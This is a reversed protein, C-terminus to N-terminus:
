RKKADGLPQAGSRRLSSFAELGVAVRWHRVHVSIGKLLSAVTLVANETILGVRTCSQMDVMLQVAAEWMSKEGCASIVSNYALENGPMLSLAMAWAMRCAHILSGLAQQDAQARFLAM